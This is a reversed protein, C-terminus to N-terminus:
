ILCPTSRLGITILPPPNDNLIEFCRTVVATGLVDVVAADVRIPMEVPRGDVTAVKAPNSPLHCLATINISM